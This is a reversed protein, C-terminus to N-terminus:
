AAAPFGRKRLLAGVDPMRGRFATYAIAPDQRNGAAYIFDRLRTAVDSAFVDGTEEFASFADADMVESWLYSYYGASYGDGAFVHAFHPTRHRMVMGKPMGIAELVSAEFAIPDIGEAQELEHFAIDVYSSACYEVTAFGQNFHRAAEIKDTLAKPIAAGTKWHRAFRHLVDPTMLWHEYLQSPLEVFDRAVATGAMSPYVVDSLMGHLGHGFEHFLTRADDFSLLTPEGDPAKAFNMVNVIVPRRNGRLKEQSRFASMWAGSRKSPRAFYDGLFLALHAGSPDLMEYVRVDPHYPAVNTVRRFSVGFLRHATDFAADIMYDLSLYAKVEAEDIAFAQRRVKQAYYRWDWPEIQGPGGESLSLEALAQREEACRAVAPTWVTDLLGRVAGPTKAMSDDLKYAAFSPYGLIRAREARLAVMEAVIARNDTAGGMQGRMIWANFVKERLDRRDSFTLFPDVISRGLTVIAKEEQGRAAAAAKTAAVLADPLGALDDAGDLAMEWGAEDALVHQSFTTGLTALRSVIAKLREREDEGLRAGSRVFSTRTRELLRLREPDLNLQDRQQFLADVRQFLVPNTGIEAWHTALRPAIEREIAQLADNTDAGTLNWFVGSVRSLAEGARELADIVNAYTAPSTDSTIAAIEARHRLLGENFAPLFHEPRIDAFPAVEFPTNWPSLLPNTELM